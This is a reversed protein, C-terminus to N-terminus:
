LLTVLTVDPVHEGSETMDVLAGDQSIWLSRTSTPEQKKPISGGKVEKKVRLEYRRKTNVIM